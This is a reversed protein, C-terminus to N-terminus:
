SASALLLLNVMLVPSVFTPPVQALAVRPLVRQFYAFTMVQTFLNFISAYRVMALLMIQLPSLLELPAVPLV